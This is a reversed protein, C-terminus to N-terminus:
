KGKHQQLKELLKLPINLYSAIITAPIQNIYGEYKSQFINYRSRNNYVHLGADHIERNVIWERDILTRVFTHVASNRKLLAQLDAYKACFLATDTIAQFSLFSPKRYLFAPLPLAFMGPIFIGKIIIEGQLSAYFSSIIGQEIFALYLPYEGAHLFFEDQRLQRITFLKLLESLSRENLAASLLISRRLNKLSIEPNM